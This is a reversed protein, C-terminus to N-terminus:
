SSSISFFASAEPHVRIQVYAYNNFEQPILRAKARCQNVTNKRSGVRPKQTLLFAKRRRALVHCIHHPVNLGLVM